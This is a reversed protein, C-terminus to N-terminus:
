ALEAPQYPQSANFTHDAGPIVLFEADPQAAHLQEAHSLPVSTDADGHIILWPQKIESAKLPIDLRVANDDLDRLLSSKYPMNQGTRSNKIYMVGAPAM